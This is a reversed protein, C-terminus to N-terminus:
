LREQGGLRCEPEYNVVADIFRKAHRASKLNLTFTAGDLKNKMTVKWPFYSEMKPWYEPEREMRKRAKAANANASWKKRAEKRKQRASIRM